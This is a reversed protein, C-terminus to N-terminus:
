FSWKMLWTASGWSSRAPESQPDYFGPCVCGFNEDTWGAELPGDSRGWSSRGWSSRTYDITGTVPDVLHNPSMGANAGSHPEAVALAAAANVEDIGGSVDRATEILTSKIQDPTWDPHVQALLGAVGSVVPAAMSTGGIQMYSGDVVCEPCLTPFASDPALTSVIHAGPAAIEPEVSSTSESLKNGRNQYGSSTSM